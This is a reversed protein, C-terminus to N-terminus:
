QNVPQPVENVKRMWRALGSERAAYLEEASTETRDGRPFETYWDAVQDWADDLILCFDNCGLILNHVDCRRDIGAHNRHTPFFERGEARGLEWECRCSRCWRMWLDLLERGTEMEVLASLFPDLEEHACDALIRRLRSDEREEFPSELMVRSLAEGIEVEAQREPLLWMGGFERVFRQRASLVQAFYHLADMAYGDSQREQTHGRHGPDDPDPARDWPRGPELLTARYATLDSGLGTMPTWVQYMGEFRSLWEVALRSGIPSRAEDRLRMMRMRYEHAERMMTQGVSALIRPEYTHRFHSVSVGVMEAAFRRLESPRDARAGEELGLSLAAADTLDGGVAVVARRLMSEIVFAGVPDDMGVQGSARALCELAPVDIRSLQGIGARRVAKLDALVDEESPM